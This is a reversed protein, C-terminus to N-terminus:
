HTVPHKQLAVGLKASDALYPNKTKRRFWLLKEVLQLLSVYALTETHFRCPFIGFPVIEACLDPGNRRQPDAFIQLLGMKRQM